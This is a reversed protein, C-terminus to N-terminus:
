FGSLKDERGNYGLSMKIIEVSLRNITPLDPHKPLTSMLYAEESMRFGHEAEEKVRELPWEGRKIELLQSADERLVHLEGDKLFEIGMRLLRILHAANKTDYGYRNVLEKRKASAHGNYQGGHTMRHLQSYAYGTFSKYVHRGVFLNRNDILLRGAETMKIYYNDELWLLAMVNPNGKALLNIFKRAEYVVIDWEGKKIENTGNSPFTSRTGFYYDIPPVCVGMVDKDDISDPSSEPIYMGHAISGRYGLLISQDGLSQYDSIISDLKIM